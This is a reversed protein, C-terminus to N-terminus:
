SESVFTQYNTDEKDQLVHFKRIAYAIVFFYIVLSLLTGCITKHKNQGRVNFDIGEGFIDLRKFTTTLYTM